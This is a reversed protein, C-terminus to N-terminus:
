EQSHHSQYHSLGRFYFEITGNKRESLARDMTM